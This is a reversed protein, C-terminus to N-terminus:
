LDLDVIVGQHVLGRTLHCCACNIFQTADRTITGYNRIGPEDHIHGFAHIRTRIRDAVHRRRSKSGVHVPKGTHMDATVDMIGNPPGHTILIDIDVPISQWVIDLESRPKMCAWNFFDPTYPSGPIKLGNWQM